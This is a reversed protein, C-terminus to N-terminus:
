PEVHGRLNDMQAAWGRSNMRLADPRRHAPLADFGTETVVLRTGGDVATLRFEVLTPTAASYDVDPEVAYPHWTFAFVHPADMRQTVSSWRVHEYGPVTMQGSTPAGPVFPTELRVRFWAGFERHDTLAQWVRDIPAKLLITKTVVNSDATDIDQSM